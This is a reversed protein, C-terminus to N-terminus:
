NLKKSIERLVKEKDKLRDLDVPANMMELHNNLHQEAYSKATQKFHDVRNKWATCYHKEMKTRNHDLYQQAYPELEQYIKDKMMEKENKVFFAKTGNYGALIHKFEAPKLQSFAQKYSPTEIEQEGAEPLFFTGDIKELDKALSDHSEKELTRLFSEIRLSVAQVEQLLEYGSYDLLKQLSQKLQEQAKRGSETITTPNFMEKFMDHFRISLRELVYYIQKEVKQAIKTEDLSTDWENITENILEMNSRLKEKRAKREKENLSLSEVYHNLTRYAHYVDMAASQITLRQLDQSIFQHFREEFERIQSNLKTGDQKEKLSRKSSVPFLRPFRIGLEVLQEEVYNTVMSLEEEDAALDAANVIFFMKDLEFAEKVRGLQMLFDKDARSLAHNYYTVYLIADAHKIYDFAVNTHRANVSDAGPTDVLTIGQRTLSSDFYLDISEIYCAKTEDTVYASFEDLTIDVQNGIRDKIQSYGRLMATLYSQYMSDLKNNRHIGEKEIWELLEETKKDEPQFIKTMLLLDNKIAEHDKIKVTVTGHPHDKTVPRIRNVAATTPNPSVPLAQQGLLANAFSSKGASFAGFLAITFSRDTLRNQKSRLDDIHGQFGPLGNITQITKEIDQLVDHVSLTDDRETSIDTMERDPTNQSITQQEEVEDPQLFEQNSTLTGEILEWDERDTAPAQLQAELHHLQEDLEKKLRHQEEEIHKQKKLKEIKQKLDETTKRNKEVIADRLSPLLKLFKQKFKSKIDAGVDNTYNLLYDGTVKAGPKILREADGPRYAVTIEQITQDINSENVGYEKVLRAFKDRLKWQIATEANKNLAGIFREARAQREEQTKKKSNFLGIKFDSQQSELYLRATERLDAPMLYANKLTQQMEQQFAKELQEAEAETEELKSEWEELEGMEADNEGEPLQDEYRKILEKKHDAVVQKVSHEIHFFSDKKKMVQKVSTKIDEVENHPANPDFLSSYYIRSPQLGWQRFTDTVSTHFQEFPIEQEDHKDVQNIIVYYPIEKQQLSRLFHLNVESQVHNYDMVYYLVDVLHLSSETMIRDADDAADIGPTDVFSVGPRVLEKATSIEIREIADKDKSYEKIMDMDYPEQYEVPHHRRFYVRATGKGSSIKVVNASTPIPSKPLIDAGLLYNIMSSKGASFHGAFSIVLEENKLKEYLEGIKEANLRDGHNKMVKYLAVLQDLKIRPRIADKVPLTKM